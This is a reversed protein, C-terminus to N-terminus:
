SGKLKKYGIEQLWNVAYEYMFLVVMTVLNVLYMRLNHKNKRIFCKKDSKEEAPLLFPILNNTNKLRLHHYDSREEGIKFAFVVAKERKM